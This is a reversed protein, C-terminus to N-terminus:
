IKFQELIKRIKEINEKTSAAIDSVHQTSQTIDSIGLSMEDMSGEVSESIIGLNDTEDKVKHAAAFMTKSTAQVNNTSDNMAKLASLVQQSAENQENMAADIEHVLNNTGSVKETILAFEEVSLKSSDVISHIIKTINDLEAKISKSQTSSNEALKRIEDAVVSFGKGSEGAHAAEIAANMALLNTQNAINSIVSNAEALHESQKAMEAIQKAVEDQRKKTKGTIDLLFEFEGTMKEVSGSVSGINGVMEEIAASSEIIESASNKIQNDLDAFANLSEELTEQVSNLAGTQKEVSGKVSAINAMIESVAGASEQSSAALTEGTKSLSEYTQKMDSIIHYQKDIFENLGNYMMGFEDDHKINFRFTLDALGDAGNLQGFSKIAENITNLVIKNILVILVIALLIIMVLIISVTTNYFKALFDNVHEINIGVFLMAKENPEDTDFKQYLVLFNQGNILNKGQYKKGENYVSSYIKSNNLRTNVLYKGDSNKISTGVRLDDIFFTINCDFLQSYQVLIDSSSIKKQLLIVADGSELAVRGTATIFIASDKVTIKAFNGRGAASGIAAKESDKNFVGGNLSFLVESNLDLLAINSLKLYNCYRNFSEKIHTTDNIDYVDNNQIFEIQKLMNTRETAIFNTVKGMKESLSVKENDLIVRKLGVSLLIFFIIGYAVFGICIILPVKSRMKM